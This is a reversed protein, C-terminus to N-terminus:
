ESPVFRMWFLNPHRKHLGMAKLAADAAERLEQWRPAKAIAELTWISKDTDATMQDILTVLQRILMGQAQNLLGNSFLRDFFMEFADSFTLVLEDPIHVFDPFVAIQVDSDAALLHLSEVVMQLHGKLDNETGM